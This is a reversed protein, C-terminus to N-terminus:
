KRSGAKAKKRGGKKKAGKLAEEMKAKQALIRELLKEAPEDDPDQPVLEGRFAKALVSQSLKDIRAKAKQFHAELKDALAFLNDVQRVIETQEELPPLVVPTKMVLPQNIKPMSGATGTANTRFYDLTKQSQLSLLLFKPLVKDKKAQVKMMLDPYIFERNKGPYIASIGVYNISNSRQILIDDKELWLYSDDPIEKDIYKFCNGDFKGSTTATLILSKVATKYNVSKPSYGNRPKGVIIEDLLCETLDIGLEERWKETLKGTVAATLVSQRFRKILAPIKDLRAKLSDIRPIIADLKTVIRKQENLPPFLISHKKILQQSINPQAGGKGKDIFNQKESLLFYYLFLSITAETPIGVACAQNTAANINLVATKGITAGYMAIAVSGVPFIKASSHRIADETIKEETTEIYKQGLEGTKIWPISGNYFAHNARSPTGGSGWDAINSLSTKTWGKPLTESM